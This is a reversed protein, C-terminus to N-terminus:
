PSLEVKIEPSLRVGYRALYEDVNTQSQLKTIRPDFDMGAWTRFQSRKGKEEVIAKNESADSAAGSKSGKMM